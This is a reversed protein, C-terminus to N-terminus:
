DPEKFSSKILNGYADIHAPVYERTDNHLTNESSDGMNMWAYGFIALSICISMMVFRRSRKDIPTVDIVENEHQERRQKLWVRLLLFGNRLAFLIIMPGFFFLITTFVLRM